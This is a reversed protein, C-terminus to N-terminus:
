VSRRARVNALVLLLRLTRAEVRVTEGSRSIQGVVPGIHWDGICLANGTSFAM